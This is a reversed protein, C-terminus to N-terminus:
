LEKNVQEEPFFDAIFVSFATTVPIALLVGLIGGIKAGTLVVLIVIVPNLGVAKQMIKPTLLHSEILNIITFGIMVFLAKLPSDFFAIIVAPVAAILPGVMPVIETIAAFLSLVLAYPVRLITLLIFVLFWVITAMLIYARAWLGIKNQIKKFLQVLYPQYNAPVVMKITKKLSEDEVILYFSIVIVVIASFIGGIISTFSSYVGTTTWEVLNTQMVKLEAIFHSFFAPNKMFAQIGPIEGNSIKEIYVPIKIGLQKAENNIPAIVLTLFLGLGILIGLYVILTAIGKPLRRSVLMRVAPELVSSLLLALFLIVLVNKIVFIFLLLLLIMILRLWSMTSLDIKVKKTQKNFM